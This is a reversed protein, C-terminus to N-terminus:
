KGFDIFRSLGIATPSLCWIGNPEMCQVLDHAALDELTRKTSTVSIRIDSAIDSITKKGGASSAKAISRLADARVAPLSDLAAKSIVRRIEQETCGVRELGRLLQAFTNAIRPGLASRNVGIIENKNYRDRQVGSRGLACFRALSGLFIQEDETLHRPPVQETWDLGTEAAWTQFLEKMAQSKGDGDPNALTSRIEHYGDSLPYRFYICREGMEANAQQHEPHDIVDTCAALFGLRGTFSLTKGGDAGVERQWHQDHIMGISGLISRASAPDSALVTRAFDLMLLAGRYTGDDMKPMDRLLGGTADAARDKAGTGSLLAAKGSIDGCERVGPISLLPKLLETKGSEPPGILMLWVPYGSMMNAAMTGCVAYLPSPDPFYLHSQIAVALRHIPTQPDALPSTTSSVSRKRMATAPAPTTVLFPKPRDPTNNSANSVSVRSVDPKPETM